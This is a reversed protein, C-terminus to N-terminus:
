GASKCCDDIGAKITVEASRTQLSTNAEAEFTVTNEVVSSHLWTASSPVKTRLVEGTTQVEGTFNNFILILAHIYSCHM